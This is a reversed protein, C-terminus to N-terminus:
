KLISIGRRRGVPRGVDAATRQALGRAPARALAAGPGSARHPPRMARRGRHRQGRPARHQDPRRQDLPHVGAAAGGGRARDGERRHLRHAGAEGPGFKGTKRSKEAAFALLHSQLSKEASTLNNPDNTKGIATRKAWVQSKAEFDQSM